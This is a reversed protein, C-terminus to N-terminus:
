TQRCRRFGNSAICIYGQIRDNCEVNGPSSRLRKGNAVSRDAWNRASQCRTRTSIPLWRSRSGIVRSCYPRRIAFIRLFYGECHGSTSVNGNLTWEFSGAFLLVQILGSHLKFYRRLAFLRVELDNAKTWTFVLETGRACCEPNANYESPATQSCSCRSPNDPSQILALMAEDAPRANMSVGVLTQKAEETLYSWDAQLSSRMTEASLQMNTKLMITRDFHGNKRLIEYFDPRARLQEASLAAFRVLAPDTVVDRKSVYYAIGYVKIVYGKRYIGMGTLTHRGQENCNRGLYRCLDTHYQLGTQPDTWIEDKAEVLYPHTQKRLRKLTEVDVNGSLDNQLSTAASDRPSGAVAMREWLLTPSADWFICRLASEHQNSSQGTKEDNLPQTAHLDFILRSADKLDPHLSPQHSAAQQQPTTTTSARADAHHVSRDMASDDAHDVDDSRKSRGGGATAVPRYRFFSFQVPAEVGGGSKQCNVLIARNSSAQKALCKRHENIPTTYISQQIRGDPLISWLMSSMAQTTTAVVTRQQQQPQQRRRRKWWPIPALSPRCPEIQLSAHAMTDSHSGNSLVVGVTQTQNTVTAVLCDTTPASVLTTTKRKNRSGQQRQQSSGKTDPPAPHWAPEATSDFDVVRFVFEFPSATTATQVTEHHRRSWGWSASLLHRQKRGNRRVIHREISWLTADGCESFTGLPGLCAGSVSDQLWLPPPDEAHYLLNERVIRRRRRALWQRRRRRQRSQRPRHHVDDADDDDDVHRRTNRSGDDCSDDQLYVRELAMPWSPPWTASVGAAHHHHPLPQPQQHQQPQFHHPLSVGLLHVLM